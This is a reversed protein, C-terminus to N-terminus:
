PAGAWRPAGQLNALVTRLLDAFPYSESFAIWVRRVSIRVQAGIKLLKTRITGCQANVMETEQLGLNRLACLLIYAFSSFYLRLQNARLTQTSTRDAFLDLQQEKIRNEMDGRACYLEEYLSRADAREVPLSTVVFRPNAGNSLHEAKGVVRRSQSWSKHTQYRFDEFVRSACGSLHYQREAELLADGLRKNLRKNKALGFLFHVDNAECWAM